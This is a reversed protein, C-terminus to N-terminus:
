IRKIPKIDILRSFKGIQKRIYAGEPNGKTNSYIKAIEYYSRDHVYYEFWWEAHKDLASPPEKLGSDKLEREFEKLRENLKTLYGIRGGSLFLSLLSPYIPEIYASLLSSGPALKQIQRESFENLIDVGAADLIGQQIRHIDRWMLEEGAWSARLNWKFALRKLSSLYPNLQELLDDYSSSITSSNQIQEMDLQLSQLYNRLKKLDSIWVILDDPPSHALVYEVDSITSLRAFQEIRPIYPKRVEKWELLFDTEQEYLHLLSNIAVFVIWDDPLLRPM